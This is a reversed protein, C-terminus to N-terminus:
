QSYPVSDKRSSSVPETGSLFNGLNLPVCLNMWDMVGDWKRFIWILIIKWGVGLDELHYNERVNGWWFGKHLEGRRGYTSCAGFV